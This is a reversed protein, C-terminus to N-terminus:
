HRGLLYLLPFLFIWVIDVFHWYLGFGEVFNHNNEDWKGRWAPLLMFLMIVIGIVMHLAHTGTMAFYISFFMEVGGEDVGVFKGEGTFAFNEGPVVHEHFKHSYEVSKIGLFAGGLVITAVLFGVIAKSKGLQGARVALAMTLSSGILIATNIVGLKIDLEHSGAAFATPNQGRYLTYVLFMGGFFMIETVLFLWMGLSSSERQQDYTEFHHALGKHHDHGDHGDPAHVHDGHRHPDAAQDPATARALTESM